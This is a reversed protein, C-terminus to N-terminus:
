AIAHLAQVPHQSFNSELHFAPQTFELVSRMYYSQIMYEAREGAVDHTTYTHRAGRVSLLAWVEYVM